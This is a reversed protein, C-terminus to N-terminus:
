IAVAASGGTMALHTWFHAGVDTVDPGRAACLCCVGFCLMNACVGRMIIRVAHANGM